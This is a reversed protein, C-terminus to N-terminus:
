VPLSLKGLFLPCSRIIKIDDPLFHYKNNNLFPTVQLDRKFSQFDNKYSLFNKNELGITKWFVKRINQHKTPLRRISPITWHQLNYKM